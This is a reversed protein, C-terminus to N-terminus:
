FKLKMMENKYIQHRNQFDKGYLELYAEMNAPQVELALLTLLERIQKDYTLPTYVIASLLLNLQNSLGIINFAHGLFLKADLLDGELAALCFDFLLYQTPYTCGIKRLEDLRISPKVNENSSYIGKIFDILLSVIDRFSIKQEDLNVREAIRNNNNQLPFKADIEAELKNNIPISEVLELIDSITPGTYSKNM